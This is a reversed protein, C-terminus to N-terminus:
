IHYASIFKFNIFYYFQNDKKFNFIICNETIDSMSLINIKKSSRKKNANKVEVPANEELYKLGGRKPPRGRQSTKAM